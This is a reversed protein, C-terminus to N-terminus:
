VVRLWDKQRIKRVIEVRENTEKIIKAVIKLGKDADIM